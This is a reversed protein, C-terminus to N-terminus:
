SVGTDTLTASGYATYFMKSPAIIQSYYYVIETKGGAVARVTPPAKLWLTSPALGFWESTPIGEFSEVESSTWINGAGTYAAQVQSYSASTISRRYVERYEMVTDTGAIVRNFLTESDTDDTTETKMAAVYQAKTPNKIEEGTVTDYLIGNSLYHEVAKKVASIDPETLYLRLTKSQWVPITEVQVDIEHLDFPEDAEPGGEDEGTGPYVVALQWQGGEALGLEITQAGTARAVDRQAQCQSLTGTWIYRAQAGDRETETVEPGRLVAGSVSTIRDSM